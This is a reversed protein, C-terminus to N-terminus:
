VSIQDHGEKTHIANVKLIFPNKLLNEFTGKATSFFARVFDKITEPSLSCHEPIEPMLLNTMREMATEMIGFCQDETFNTRDGAINKDQQTGYIMEVIAMLVLQIVDSRETM